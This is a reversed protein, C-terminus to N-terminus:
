NKARMDRREYHGATKQQPQVVDASGTIVLPNVHEERVDFEEGAKRERDYYMTRKAVMRVTKTNDM